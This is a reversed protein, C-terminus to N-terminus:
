ISGDVYFIWRQSGIGVFIGFDTINKIKGELIAGIPYNEAINDWPNTELQKISLSLRKLESYLIGEESCPDKM